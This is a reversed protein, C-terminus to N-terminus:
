NYYKIGNEKYEKLYPKLKLDYSGPFFYIEQHGRKVFEAMIDEVYEILGGARYPRKWWAIRLIKM